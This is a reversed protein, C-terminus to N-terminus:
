QCGDEMNQRGANAATSTDAVAAPPDSPATSPVSAVCAPCIHDGDADRGWGAAKLAVKLAPVSHEVGEFNRACQACLTGIRHSGDWPSSPDPEPEEMAKQIFSVELQAQDIWRKVQPSQTLRMMDGMKEPMDACMTDIAALANQALDLQEQAKNLDEITPKPRKPLPRSAHQIGADIDSSLFDHLAACLRTVMEKKRHLGALYDPPYMMIPSSM